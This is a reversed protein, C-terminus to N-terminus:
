AHRVVMPHLIATGYGAPVGTVITALHHAALDYAYVTRGAHIVVTRDGDVFGLIDVIDTSPIDIRISPGSSISSVFVKPYVTVNKPTPYVPTSFAWLNGHAWSVSYVDKSCVGCGANRGDTYVRGRRGNPTSLYLVNPTGQYPYYTQLALQSGDPRWSLIREHPGALRRTPHGSANLLWRDFGYGRAQPAWIPNNFLSSGHRALVIPVGGTSSRVIEDEDCTNAGCFNPRIIGVFRDDPSWSVYQGKGLQVSHGALDVITIEPFINKATDLRGVEIAIRNSDHSWAPFAVYSAVHGLLRTTRGLTSDWVRLISTSRNGAPQVLALYRGNPSWAFTPPSCNSSCRRGLLITINGTDLNIVALRGESDDQAVRQGDPSWLIDSVSSGGKTSAPWPTRILRAPGDGVSRLWLHGAAIYLLGPSSRAVDYADTGGHAAASVTPSTSVVLLSVVALMGAIYNRM